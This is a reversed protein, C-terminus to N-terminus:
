QEEGDHAAAPAPELCPACSSPLSIRLYPSHRRKKERQSPEVLFPKPLRKPARGFSGKSNELVLVACFRSIM